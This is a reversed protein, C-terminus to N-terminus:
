IDNETFWELIELEDGRDLGHIPDCIFTGYFNVVVCGNKLSAPETWDNDCHRIQYWEKGQPISDVKLRVDVFLGEVKQGNELTLSMPTKNEEKYDYVM